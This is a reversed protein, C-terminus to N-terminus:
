RLAEQRAAQRWASCREGAASAAVRGARDYAWVAAALVAVSESAAPVIVFPEAGRRALERDLFTTDFRGERFPYPVRDLDCIVDAATDRNRDIGIAGPYKNRGCGVDLTM